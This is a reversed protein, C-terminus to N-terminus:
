TNSLTKSHRVNEECNMCLSEIEEVLRVREDESAEEESDGLQLGLVQKGIAAFLDNEDNQARQSNLYENTPRDAM